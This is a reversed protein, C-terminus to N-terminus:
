RCGDIGGDSEYVAYFRGSAGGRWREPDRFWEEWRAASEGHDGPQRHRSQDHVAPLVEAGLHAEELREVVVRSRERGAAPLQDEAPIEVDRAALLVHM